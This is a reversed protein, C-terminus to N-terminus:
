KGNDYLLGIAFLPHYNGSQSLPNLDKLQSKAATFNSLTFQCTVVGNFYTQQGFTLVGGQDSGASKPAEHNNPNIYRNLVITDNSLRKCM